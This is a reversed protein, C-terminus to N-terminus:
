RMVIRGLDCMYVNRCPRLMRDLRHVSQRQVGVWRLECGYIELDREIALM